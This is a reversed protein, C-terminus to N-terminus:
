DKKREEKPLDDLKKLDLINLCEIAANFVPADSFYTFFLTPYIREDFESAGSVVSYQEGTETNLVTKRQYWM